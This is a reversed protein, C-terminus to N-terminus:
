KTVTTLYKTLLESLASKLEIGKLKGNDIGQLREVNESLINPIETMPIPSKLRYMTDGVREIGEKQKGKYVCPINLVTYRICLAIKYLVNLPYVNLIYDTLDEGFVELLVSEVYYYCQAEVYDAVKQGIKTIRNDTTKLLELVKSLKFIDSTDVRVEGQLLEEFTFYYMTNAICILLKLYGECSVVTDLDQQMVRLRDKLQSEYWMCLYKRMLDKDKLYEALEERKIGICSLIAYFRELEKEKIVNKECKDWLELLGGLNETFPMGGKGTHIVVKPMLKNIIQMDQTLQGSGYKYSYMGKNYATMSILSGRKLTVPVILNLRLLNKYKLFMRHLYDECLKLFVESDCACYPKGKYLVYDGKYQVVRTESMLVNLCQIYEFFCKEFMDTQMLNGIYESCYKEFDTKSLDGFKLCLRGMDLTEFDFNTDALVTCDVSCCGKRNFYTDHQKIAAFGIGLDRYFVPYTSVRIPRTGEEIKKIVAQVWNDKNITNGILDVKTDCPFMPIGMTKPLPMGEYQQRTALNRFYCKSAVYQVNYFRKNKIIESTVFKKYFVGNETCEVVYHYVGKECVYWSQLVELVSGVANLQNDTIIPINSITLGAKPNLLIHNDQISFTKVDKDRTITEVCAAVTDFVGTQTDAINNYLYPQLRYGQEEPMISYLVNGSSILYGTKTGTESRTSVLCWLFM